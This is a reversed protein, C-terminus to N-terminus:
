FLEFDDTWASCWCKHRDNNHSPRIFKSPRPGDIFCIFVFVGSENEDDSGITESCQHKSEPNNTFFFFLYNLFVFCILVHLFGRTLGSAIRCVTKRLNCSGCGDNRLSLPWSHETWSCWMGQVFLVSPLTFANFFSLFFFRKRSKLVAKVFM